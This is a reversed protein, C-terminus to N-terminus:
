TEYHALHEAMESGTRLGWTGWRFRGLHDPTANGAGQYGPLQSLDFLLPSFSVEAGRM